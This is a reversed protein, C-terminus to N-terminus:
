VHFNAYSHLRSTGGRRRGKPDGNEPFKQVVLNESHTIIPISVINSFIHSFKNVSFLPSLTGIWLFTIVSALLQYKWLIYKKFM